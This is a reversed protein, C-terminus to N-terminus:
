PGERACLEAAAQAVTRDNPKQAEALRIETCAEAHLQLDAAVRALALHAEGRRGDAQLSRRLALRAEDLRGARHQELGARLQDAAYAALDGTRRAFEEQAARVAAREDDTVSERLADQYLNLEKYLFVLNKRAPIESEGLNEITARLAMETRFYDKRFYYATALCFFGDPSRPALALGQRCEAIAADYQNRDCYVGSLKFHDMPDDGPVSAGPSVFTFAASPGNVGWGALATLAAAPLWRAARGRRLDAALVCGGHAALIALLPVVPTRYRDAIFFPIVSAAFALASAAILWAYPKRDEDSTRLSMLLGLATFPLWVGIGLCLRLVPVQKRVFAYSINLPPEEARFFMAAKLLTLAVASRPSHLWWSLGERFWFASAGHADLARGSRRSAEETSTQVQEVPRDAVGPVHAYRGTAEAHNGIYFNIGGSSPLPSWHGEVLRSRLAFPLLALFVGLAFWAGRAARERRSGEGARAGAVFLWAVAVPLLAIANPRVLTFAGLALGAATARPPPRHSCRALAALTALFALVSVTVPLVLASYFVSTGHWAYLGAAVRATTRGYALGALFRILALSVLDCLIQLGAVVLTAGAVPWSALPALLFSYLSNLATFAPHDFHGTAIARSLDRYAETDQPVIAGVPERLYEAAFAVRVVLALLVIGLFAPDSGFVAGCQTRM